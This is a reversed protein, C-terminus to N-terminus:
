QGCGRCSARVQRAGRARARGRRRGAGEERVRWPGSWGGGSGERGWEGCPEVGGEWGQNREGEPLPARFEGGPGRQGGYGSRGTGVGAGETGARGPGAGSGGPSPPGSQAAGSFECPRAKGSPLAPCGRAGGGARGNAPQADGRAEEKRESAGECHRGRALAGSHDSPHLPPASQGSGSGKRRQGASAEQPPPGGAGGGTVRPREWSASAPEM